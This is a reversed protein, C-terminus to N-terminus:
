GYKSAINWKGDKLPMGKFSEFYLKKGIVKSELVSVEMKQIDLGDLCPDITNAEVRLISWSM